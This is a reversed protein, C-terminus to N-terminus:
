MSIIADLASFVLGTIGLIARHVIAAQELLRVSWNVHPGKNGCRSSTFSSKACSSGEWVHFIPNGYVLRTEIRPILAGNEKLLDYTVNIIRFRGWFTCAKAKM